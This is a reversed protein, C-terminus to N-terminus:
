RDPTLIVDASKKNQYIEYSGIKKVLHYRQWEAKFGSDKELDTIFNPLLKQNEKSVDVLVFDPKENRFDSVIRKQYLAQQKMAWSSPSDLHVMMWISPGAPLYHM